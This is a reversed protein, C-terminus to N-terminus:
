QHNTNQQIKKVIMMEKVLSTLIHRKLDIEIMDEEEEEVEEEINAEAEINEEEETIAEKVEKKDKEEINEMPEEEEKADREMSTQNMLLLPVKRLMM